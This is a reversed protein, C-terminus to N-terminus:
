QFDERKDLIKKVNSPIEGKAKWSDAFGDGGKYAALAYEWCGYKDYKNSLIICAMEINGEPTHADLGYENAIHCNGASLQMYGYYREGGEEGGLVKENGIDDRFTSETYMLSFFIDLPIDYINCDEIAEDIIHDPLPKVKDRYYDIAAGDSVTDKIDDGIYQKDIEIFPDETEFIKVVEPMSESIGQQYKEDKSMEAWEKIPVEKKEIESIDSLDVMEPEFSDYKSEELLSKEYIKSCKVCSWATIFGGVLFLVAGIIALFIMDKKRREKRWKQRVNEEIDLKSM